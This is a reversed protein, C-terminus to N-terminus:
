VAGGVYEMANNKNYEKAIKNMNRVFEWASILGSSLLELVLIEKGGVVMKYGYRPANAQLRQALKYIWIKEYIGFTVTNLALVFLYSKSEVGDGCCVADVDLSLQYYFYLKYISFFITAVATAVGCIGLIVWMLINIGPVLMLPISIIAALVSFGQLVKAACFYRFDRNKIKEM